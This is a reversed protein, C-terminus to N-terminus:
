SSLAPFISQTDLFSFPITSQKIVLMQMKIFLLKFGWQLYIDFSFPFHHPLSFKILKVVDPLTLTIKKEKRQFPLIQNLLYKFEEM